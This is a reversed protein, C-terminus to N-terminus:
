PQVARPRRTVFAYAVGLSLLAAIAPVGYEMTLIATAYADYRTKLDGRLLADRGRREM